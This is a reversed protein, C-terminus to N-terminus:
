AEVSDPRWNPHGRKPTGFPIENAGASAKSKKDRIISTLQMKVVSHLVIM